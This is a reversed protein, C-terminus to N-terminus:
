ASDVMAEVWLIDVVTLFAMSEIRGLAFIM